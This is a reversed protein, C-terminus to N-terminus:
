LLFLSRRRELGSAEVHMVVSVGLRPGTHRALEQQITLGHRGGFLGASEHIGDQLVEPLDRVVVQHRRAVATVPHPRMGFLLRIRRIDPLAGIVLFAGMEVVFPVELATVIALVPAHKALDVYMGRPGLEHSLGQRFVQPQGLADTAGELCQPALLLGEFALRVALVDIDICQHFGVAVRPGAALHGAPHEGLQLFHLAVDGHHEHDIHAAGGLAPDVVRFAFGQGQEALREFSQTVPIGNVAERSPRSLAALEVADFTEVLRVVFLDLPPDRANLRPVVRAHAHGDAVQRTQKLFHVRPGPQEDRQGVALGVVKVAIAPFVPDLVGAHGEDLRLAAADMGEADGDVLFAM